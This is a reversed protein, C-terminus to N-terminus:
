ILEFRDTETQNPKNPYFSAWVPKVRNQGTQSLKKQRNPETKETQTRNPNSQPKETKKKHFRVLGALKKLIKIPKIYKKVTRNKWNNKKQKETKQEGRDTVLRTM